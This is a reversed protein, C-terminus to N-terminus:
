NGISYLLLKNDIWKRYLLGRRTVEHQKQQSFMTFKEAETYPAHNRTCQMGVLPIVRAAAAGRTHCRVDKRHVTWPPWLPEQWPRAGSTHAAPHVPRPDASATWEDGVGDRKMLFCPQTPLLGCARRGKAAATQPEWTNVRHTNGNRKGAAERRWELDVLARAVASETPCDPSCTNMCAQRVSM